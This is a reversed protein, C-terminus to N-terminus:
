ENRDSEVAPYAIDGPRVKGYNRMVLQIVEGPDKTALQGAAGAKRGKVLGITALATSFQEADAKSLDGM